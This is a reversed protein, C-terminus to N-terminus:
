TIIDIRYNTDFGQGIRMIKINDGSKIGKKVFEKALRKSKSNLTKEENGESMLVYAMRKTGPMFPDEEIFASVFTGSLENQDNFKLYKNNDGIFKDFDNM